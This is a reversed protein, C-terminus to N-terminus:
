DQLVVGICLTVNLPKEKFYFRLFTEGGPEVYEVMSLRVRKKVITHLHQKRLLM